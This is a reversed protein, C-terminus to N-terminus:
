AKPRKHEYSSMGGNRPLRGPEQSRGPKYLLHMLLLLLRNDHIGTLVRLYLATGSANACSAQCPLRIDLIRTGLKKSGASSRGLIYAIWASALSFSM